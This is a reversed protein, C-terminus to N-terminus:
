RESAPSLLLARTGYKIRKGGDGSLQHSQQVHEAELLVTHALERNGKEILHTALYHLHRTAKDVQGSSIEGRVREQMRYLTLKEIAEMIMPPPPDEVPNAVVPRAMRLFIRAKSNSRGPIDMWISGKALTLQEYEEKKIPPLTFEFLLSISRHYQIDGLVIPNTTDLPSINPIIRFAYSLQVGPSTDFQYSLGRAFLTEVQTLKDAIFHDLEAPSTILQANGGSSSAIQDMLEDNWDEGIGLVSISIGEAAAEKALSLCGQEDGYTRGDTLLILHQSYGSDSQRLQDVGLSLGQLIETGGSAKLLSIRHDSKNISSVRSPPILVEARDSFAVISLMDQPRLQQMLNASSAKVMDMRAGQMSTSRDLVLCIHVPATQKKEINATCILEVLAYILQPEDLVPIASRSFRITATIEPVARLEEPLSADYATRKEPNSLVEYANQIAIFAEGDAENQNVDPHYLRALQRYADRIEESTADYPLGLLSYYDRVM